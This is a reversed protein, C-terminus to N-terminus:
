LMSRYLGRGITALDLIKATDLKLNFSPFVPKSPETFRRSILLKDILSGTYGTMATIVGSTDLTSGTVSATVNSQYNVTVWSCLPHLKSNVSWSSIVHGVNFIWDIMFSFPTLEWIAELPQDIGWLALLGNIDNEIDYLVGARYDLTYSETSQYDAYSWSSGWLFTDGSNQYSSDDDFGRATQRQGKNVESQLATIAQKMEFAIPRVAYRFELWLDSLSDAIAGPKSYKKLVQLRKKKSKFFRVTQVMRNLLSAIWRINEPLEGLSALAAAESVSVNAWAKSVAVSVDIGVVESLFDDIDDLEGTFSSMTIIDSLYKGMRGHGGGSGSHTFSTTAAEEVFERKFYIKPNNIIEGRNLKKHFNPTVVDRMQSSESASVYNKTNNWHYGNNTSWWYHKWSDSSSTSSFVRDRM